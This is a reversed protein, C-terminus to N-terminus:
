ESSYSSAANVSGVIVTPIGGINTMPTAFVLTPPKESNTLQCATASVELKHSVDVPIVHAVDLNLM